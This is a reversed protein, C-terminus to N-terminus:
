SRTLSAVLTPSSLVADALGHALGIVGADGGLRSRVIRLERTALPLSRAYILERVGALLHEDARALQGGIVLVSPNFLSVAHALGAGLVRGAARVLMIATSDGYGVAEVVDDVRAMRRGAAALDRLIAWGGAYAEVCGVKGCQCVPRDPRTGLEDAWTHGIDGAAGQAGRLVNGNAVLGSGVGTGVKLFLLDAVEPYCTRQEGLAMANVDNDVFVTAGFRRRLRDPVVVGDWGTMIPPNVVRGTAFEIPGPLSVGVGWVERGGGHEALLKALTDEALTLVPGPGDRVDIEADVRHRVAGALDCLALRMGSAGIDAVLLVGRAPAFRFRSAPRGRGSQVAGHPELLGWEVLQDLRHNVTMRAWGTREAVEARTLAATRFLQLLEVAGSVDTAAM